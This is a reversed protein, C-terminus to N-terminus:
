EVFVNVRMRSVSEGARGSTSLPLGHRVSVSNPFTTSGTLTAASSVPAFSRSSRPLGWMSRNSETSSTGESLVRLGGSEYRGSIATRHFVNLPLERESPTEGSLWWDCLHLVAIRGEERWGLTREIARVALGRIGEEIAGPNSRAPSHEIEPVLRHEMPQPAPAGVIIRRRM